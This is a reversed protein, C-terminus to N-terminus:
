SNMERRQKIEALVKALRSYSIEKFSRSQVRELAADSSYYATRIRELSQKMRKLEREYEADSMEPIAYAVSIRNKKSADILTTNQKGSGKKRTSM